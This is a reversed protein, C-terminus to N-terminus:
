ESPNHTDNASTITQQIQGINEKDIYIFLFTLSAKGLFM